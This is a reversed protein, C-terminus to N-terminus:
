LVIISNGGPDRGAELDALARLGPVPYSAALAARLERVVPRNSRTAAVLLIVRDVLSDRLKLQIRRDLEQIDRPRTEAEIAIRMGAGRLVADWARLDGPRDIPVETDWRFGRIRVRLRELLALHAADRLPSAVPFSRLWLDLGVVAFLQSLQLIGLDPVLGREIRSVTAASLGVRRGVATLTLSAALRAQRLQAGQEAM